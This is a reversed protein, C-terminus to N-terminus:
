VFAVRGEESYGTTDPYEAWVGHSYDAWMSICPPFSTPQLYEAPSDM